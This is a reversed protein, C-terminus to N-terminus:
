RETAANAQLTAYQRSADASSEVPLGAQAWGIEGARSGGFGGLVNTVHQYGASALLEAAQISRAGAQCGVLLPADPPFNAKVVNVFDPNPRMQRTVPDLHLLPVNYAGAPHAQDFEPVSRVDLYTAGADQQQRAQQVTVHKIM